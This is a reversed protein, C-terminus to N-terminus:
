AAVRDAQVGPQQQERGVENVIDEDVFEYVDPMRVVRAPEPLRYRDVDRVVAVPQLLQPVPHFREGDSAVPV